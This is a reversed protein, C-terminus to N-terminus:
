MRALQLLPFATMLNAFTPGAALSATGSGAHIVRDIWVTGGEIGEGRIDNEAPALSGAPTLMVTSDLIVCEGRVLTQRGDTAAPDYPGFLGTGTGATGTAHATTPTTGGGFTNTSTLQPVNGQNRLFTVTYVYPDGNTGAGSRAVSAGGPGIRSLATLALEFAAASATASIAATSQAALTGDTPLTVIASGTTPGGSFTVTQVEAVNQRTMVQGYRLYQNNAKIVSGDPLTTDTVAAAPVTTLDLTFGGVKYLPQGDASVRTPKVTSAAITTQGYPM